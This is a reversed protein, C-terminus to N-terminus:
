REREERTLKELEPELEMIRANFYGVNKDLADIRKNMEEIQSGISKKAENVNREVLVNGGVSVLVKNKKLITNVLVGGGLPVMIDKDKKDKLETLTNKLMELEGVRNQLEMTEEQLAGIQQRIM